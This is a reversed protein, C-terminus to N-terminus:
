QRTNPICHGKPQSLCTEGKGFDSPSHIPFQWKNHMESTISEGSPAKGTSLWGDTAGGYLLIIVLIALSQQASIHLLPTTQPGTRSWSRNQIRGLGTTYLHTTILAECMLFCPPLDDRTWPMAGQPSPLSAPLCRGTSLAAGM